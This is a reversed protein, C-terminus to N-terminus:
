KEAIRSRNRIRVGEGFGFVISDVPSESNGGKSVGFLSNRVVNGSSFGSKPGDLVCWAGPANLPSDPDAGPAQARAWPGPGPGLGWAWAGHGLGM